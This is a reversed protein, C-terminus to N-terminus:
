LRDKIPLSYVYDNNRLPAHCGTCEAVFNANKGYPQLDLGRWRAWGWGETSAYKRSDKIMFEV